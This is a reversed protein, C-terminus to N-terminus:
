LPLQLLFLHRYIETGNYLVKFKWLGEVFEYDYDLTYSHFMPQNTIILQSMESTKFSKGNHPNKMIKPFEWVFTVPMIVNESGTSIKFEVGFTKGIDAIVTDTTLMLKQASVVNMSDTLTGIAQQKNAVEVKYIGHGSETVKIGFSNNQAFSVTSTAAIVLQTLVFLILTSKSTPM